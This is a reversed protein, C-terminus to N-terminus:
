SMPINVDSESMYLQITVYKFGQTVVHKKVYKKLCVNKKVVTIDIEIGSQTQNFLVHDKSIANYQSLYFERKGPFVIKIISFFTRRDFIIPYSTLLLKKFYRINEKLSRKFNSSTQLFNQFTQFHSGFIIALTLSLRRIVAFQKCM